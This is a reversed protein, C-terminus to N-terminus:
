VDPVAMGKQVAPRAAIADLWRRTNTGEGVIDPKAQKILEFAVAVWPYTAIDAISYDGGLYEADGLRGDMVNILRASESVYRDIAFPVKEEATNMFFNAQGLMPGIGAMQWFLWEMCKSRAPEATPLFKGTKEALYLLIAGSWKASEERRHRRQEDTM